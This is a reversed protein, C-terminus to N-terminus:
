TDVNTDTQATPRRRHPHLDRAHVDGVGALEVIGYWVRRRWNNYRIPKGRPSIVLRGGLPTVTQGALHQRVRREVDDSMPITRGEDARSRGKVASERGDKTLTREIRITGEDFDIDSRKLASAEGIRMGCRVMLWVILAQDENVVEAADHVSEPCERCMRSVRWGGCGVHRVASELSSVGGFGPCVM